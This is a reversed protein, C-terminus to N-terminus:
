SHRCDRSTLTCHPPWRLARIRGTFTSAQWASCAPKPRRSIRRPMLTSRRELAPSTWGRRSPSAARPCPRVTRACSSCRPSRSGGRGAVVTREPRGGASLLWRYDSAADEVAAPFPREPALHYRPILARAGSANALHGALKRRSHPSSIVYGGGYLYMIASEGDWSEPTAWLGDVEYAEEYTVGVPESTMDEAHEGAERQHPLDMDVAKPANRLIENLKLAEPSVM